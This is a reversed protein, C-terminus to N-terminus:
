LSSGGAVLSKAGEVYGMEAIKGQQQGQNPLGLPNVLVNPMTYYTLDNFLSLLKSPM